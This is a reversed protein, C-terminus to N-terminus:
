GIKWEDSHVARHCPVCLTVGNWVDYRHRPFERWPLVHHAHLDGGRKGCQQCTYNDAERVAASWEGQLQTNWGRSRKSANPNYNHHAPGYLRKQGAVFCPKSCFKRKQWSVWPVGNWAFTNGCYACSKERPGGKWRGNLAGLRTTEQLQYRCANSCCKAAKRAPVAKFTNGCVVCQREM